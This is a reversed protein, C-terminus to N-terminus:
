PNFQARYFRQTASRSVPETFEVTGSPNPINTVSVWNTFDESRWITVSSGPESTVVLNLQNGGLLTATSFQFPVPETFTLLANASIVSGSANTVM